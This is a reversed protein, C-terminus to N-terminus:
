RIFIASVTELGLKVAEKGAWFQGSFMVKQTGKLREGRREKVLNKFFEHIEKQMDKLLKIDKDKEPQFPDLISKNDGAAYVRRDVGIKEIAKDFGFGASIVGISGVISAEHAYIEEAALSILYGGSAAVDEAFAYVPIKKEESIKQIRRMILESQVPSGGPSNVALAVAKVNYVDFAQNIKEELGALNLARSFRSTSGIVGELPLIAVVPAPNQFMPLPIQALLQQIKKLM